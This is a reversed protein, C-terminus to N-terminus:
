VKSLKGSVKAAIANAFEAAADPGNATVIRSDSVVPQDRYRAKGQALASLSEPMPWVTAEKDKLVGSKALAAGSLCIAAIIKEDQDMQKLLGHLEACDWLHEPSGMGGVVVIANFAKGDIEKLLAEPEYVAGLMGKSPGLRTSAVVVEAGLEVFIARPVLLEEDRFQEPAIVMLIKTGALRKEAM